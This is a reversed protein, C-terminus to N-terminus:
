VSVDQLEMALELEYASLAKISGEITQCDNGDGELLFVSTSLAM